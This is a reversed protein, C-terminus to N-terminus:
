LRLRVLYSLPMLPLLHLRTETGPAHQHFNGPACESRIENGLISYCLNHKAAFLLVCPLILPNGIIQM